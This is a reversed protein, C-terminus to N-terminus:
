LTPTVVMGFWKKSLEALTGDDSMSKLAASLKDALEANGKQVAVGVGAGMIGGKFSPGTAVAEDAHKKLFASINTVSAMAADLRGNLLDQYVDSSNPYARITVGMPALYKDLFDSQITAVQVGVTKGKLVAAVAEIAAQTAAEDDLDVATDLGPLELGSEKTVAFTSGGTTYPLSFDVVQLRKETITVADVVADYKGDALGQIMGDWAQSILKFEFGARKAMEAVLDPEFGYITGDPKTMNFPPFAGETAFVLTKSEARAPGVVLVAAAALGSRLFTARTITM